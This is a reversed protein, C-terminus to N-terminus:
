LAIGETAINYRLAANQLNNYRVLDIRYPLMLDDLREELQAVQTISVNDGDLAIDIDSTPRYDGRARSGFVVAKIDSQDAFVARISSLDRDSLGFM